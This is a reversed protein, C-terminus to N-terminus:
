GVHLTSDLVWCGAYVRIYWYADAILVYQLIRCVYM